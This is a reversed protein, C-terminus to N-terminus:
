SVRWGDPDLTPPGFQQWRQAHLAATVDKLRSRFESETEFTELRTSGDGEHWILEYSQSASNYRTEIKMAADGRSYMWIM